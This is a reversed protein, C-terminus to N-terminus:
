AGVSPRGASGRAGLDARAVLRRRAAAPHQRRLPAARLRARRARRGRRRDHARARARPPRPLRGPRRRVRGGRRRRGPVLRGHRLPRLLDGGGLGRSAAADGLPGPDISIRQVGAAVSNTGTLSQWSPRSTGGSEGSERSRTGTAHDRGFGLHDRGPGPVAIGISTSRYPGDACLFLSGPPRGFGTM